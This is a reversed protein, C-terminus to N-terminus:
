DNVLDYLSQFVLLEPTRGTSKRVTALIKEQKYLNIIRYATQRNVGMFTEFQKISFIPRQFIFDLGKISYPSKSIKYIKKKTEEYLSLIQLAKQTNKYSQSEVAALFFIVWNEWAGEESIMHLRHIYEGRHSELYESIYFMPLIIVERMWLYLPILIRGTRGNGDNFPHIIEFQAHLFATQILPEEETKIYDFLNQLHFPVDLPIPPIFTAEEIKCNDAGIWNQDKRIEGPTKNEGRVDHMLAKQISCVLSTNIPLGKGIWEQSLRMANRYNLVEQLDKNKAPVVLNEAEFKLVEDVTTVTGEIKSSLVAERIELPSLFISPSIGPHTLIATYGSIAARARSTLLLLRELNWKSKDIPLPHPVFPELFM